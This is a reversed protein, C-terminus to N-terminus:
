AGELKLQSMSAGTRQARAASARAAGRPTAAPERAPPAAAAGAGPPALSRYRQYPELLKTVAPALPRRCEFQRTYENNLINVARLTALSVPPDQRPSFSAAPM